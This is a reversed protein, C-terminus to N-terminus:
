QEVEHGSLTRAQDAVRRGYVAIAVVILGALVAAALPLGLPEFFPYTRLAKFPNPVAARALPAVTLLVVVVGAVLGVIAGYATVFALERRRIAGQERSAFGLARLVVVEGRRSRLQAGVVAGIAALALVVCGAAAVWLAIAASGLMPRDSDLELSKVATGRPLASRLAEAVERPEDAGIWYTRPLEPSASTRLRIANLVDIDLLISDASSAAPVALVVDTVVATLRPGSAEPALPFTTGAVLGNRESFNSSVIVPVPLGLAEDGGDDPLLRALGGSSPLTIGHGTATTPLREIEDDGVSIGAFRGGLDVDAGDHELGVIELERVALAGDAVEAPSTTADIAALRWDGSAGVLPPLTGLYSAPAGPGSATAPSSPTDLELSVQRMVGADNAIWLSLHPDTQLGTSTVSLIFPGPTGPIPPQHLEVAIPGAMAAPDIAGGADAALQELAAPAVGIVSAYGGAVKVEGSDLPAVGSVGPTAAVVDLTPGAAAGHGVVVRTASGARLEQSATFSADWSASYGAAFVLSGGALAVVLLPTSGIALRRTISRAALVRNAGLRRGAIRETIPAVIPFLLLGALVLAVLLLAPAPVTVPDVQTGGGAQPTVPTGYLQLQWFSVAAALGILAVLGGGAIRRARGSRAANDRRATRKVGAFAHAAFAGVTIAATALPVLWLAAGTAAAAEPGDVALLLGSAAAAGIVGGIVAVVATEVATSRAIAGATAGRSWLLENEVERVGSLLRALEMLTVIAIAAVLLLAVPAVADLAHVRSALQQATLSFGGEQSVGDDDLGAVDLADGLESWAADVVDLDHARIALRDPVITWEAWPRVTLQPWTEDAVVIPGVVTDNRGGVIYPDGLWRADLPDTMRWTGALVLETEGVLIADGPSVGLLEAADAQMSVEDAASPWSGDELTAHDALDAFGAVAARTFEAPEDQRGVREVEVTGAGVLTRYVDVPIEGGPGRFSSAVVEVVRRDQEAVDGARPLSLRYGLEVGNREALQARVGDDAASALFGILGTGLASVIVVIALLSAFLSRHERVRLASLL